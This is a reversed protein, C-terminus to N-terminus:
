AFYVAKRKRFALALFGIAMLAYTKPEPITHSDSLIAGIGPALSPTLILSSSTYTLITPYAAELDGLTAYMYEPYLIAPTTYNTNDNPPVQTLATNEMIALGYGIVTAGPGLLEFVVDFVSTAITSGVSQTIQGYSSPLGPYAASGAEMTYGGANTLTMSTIQTDITNTTGDTTGNSRAVTTPGYLSIDFPNVGLTGSFTGSTNNMVDTGATCSPGAWNVGPGCSASAQADLATVSLAAVAIAAQLWRSAFTKTEMIKYQM